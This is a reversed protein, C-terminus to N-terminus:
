GKSVSQTPDTSQKTKPLLSMKLLIRETWMSLIDKWKNTDEETEIMLTKCNEFYIDKVEKTLNIRLYKIRKSTISFSITKKIKRKALKNNTYLFM